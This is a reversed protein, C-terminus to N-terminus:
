RCTPQGGSCTGDPGCYKLVQTEVCDDDWPACKTCREGCTKDGCPDYSKRCEPKDASCTGDPQCYKLVQTEVCDDDGPPCKTCREGCVKGSCPNYDRDDSESGDDRCAPEGSECSGDSQCYKIAQTEVCDDDDPPCITCREGCTKRACPDYDASHAKSDDTNADNSSDGDATSSQESNVPDDGNSDTAHTCGVGLAAAVLAIGFLQALPSSSLHSKRDSTDIDDIM